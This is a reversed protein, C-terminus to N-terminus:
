EREIGSGHCDQCRRYHSFLENGTGNCRPCLTKGIALNKNRLAFDGRLLHPVTDLDLLMNHDDKKSCYEDWSIVKIETCNM